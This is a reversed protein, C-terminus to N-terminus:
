KGEKIIHIIIDYGEATDSISYPVKAFTHQPRLNIFVSQREEFPLNVLEVRRICGTLLISLIILLIIVKKKKM